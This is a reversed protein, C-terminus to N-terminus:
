TPLRVGPGRAPFIYAEWHCYKTSYYIYSKRRIGHDKKSYCCFSFCAFGRHGFFIPNCCVPVMSDGINRVCSMYLVAPSRFANVRRDGCFMCFSERTKLASRMVRVVNQRVRLLARLRLLSAEQRFNPLRVVAHVSCKMMLFSMELCSCRSVSLLSAAGVISGINSM